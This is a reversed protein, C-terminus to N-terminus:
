LKVLGVSWLFWGIGLLGELDSNPPSLLCLSPFPLIFALLTRQKFYKCRIKDSQFSVSILVVRINYIQFSCWINGKNNIMRPFYKM